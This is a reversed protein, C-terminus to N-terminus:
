TRVEHVIGRRSVRLSFTFRPARNWETSGVKYAYFRAAAFRTTPFWSKQNV